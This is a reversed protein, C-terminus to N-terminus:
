GVKSDDGRPSEWDSFCNKWIFEVGEKQHPRMKDVLGKAVIVSRREGSRGAANRALDWGSDNRVAVECQQKQQDSMWLAVIKNTCATCYGMAQLEGVFECKPCKGTAM